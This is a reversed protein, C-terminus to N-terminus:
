QLFILMKSAGGLFSFIFLYFYGHELSRFIFGYLYRSWPWLWKFIRLRRLTYPPIRNREVPSCGTVQGDHNSHHNCKGNLYYLNFFIMCMWQCTMLFVNLPSDTLCILRCYNCITVADGNISMSKREDIDSPSPNVHIDIQRVGRQFVGCFTYSSHRDSPGGRQFVGFFTGMKRRFNVGPVRPWADCM